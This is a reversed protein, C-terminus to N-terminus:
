PQTEDNGENGEAFITRQMNFFCPLQVPGNQCPLEFILFGGAKTQAAPYNNVPAYKIRKGESVKSIVFSIFSFFISSHRQSTGFVPAM